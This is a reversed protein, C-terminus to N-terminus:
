KANAEIEAQVVAANRGTIVAFVRAFSLGFYQSDVEKQYDYYGYNRINDIQQKSITISCNSVKNKITYSPICYTAKKKAEGSEDTLETLDENRGNQTSSTVEIEKNADSWRFVGNVISMIGFIVGVAGIIVASFQFGAMISFAIGAAIFCAGLLIFAVSAIYHVNSATEHIKIQGQPVGNGPDYAIQTKKESKIKGIIAELHDAVEIHTVKLGAAAKCNALLHTKIKENKFDVTGYELEQKGYDYNIGEVMKNYM